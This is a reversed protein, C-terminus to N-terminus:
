QFPAQYQNLEVSIMSLSIKHEAELKVAFWSLRRRILRFGQKMNQGVVQADISGFKAAAFCL